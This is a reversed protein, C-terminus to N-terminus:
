TTRSLAVLAVDGVYGTSAGNKTAMRLEVLHDGSSPIAVGTLTGTAAAPAAAYGDITGVPIGDLLVTYIGRDTDAGHLLDLTYTGAAGTWRWTASADVGSSSRLTGGWAGTAQRAWTGASTYPSALCPVAITAPYLTGPSPPAVPVVPVAVTRRETQTLRRNTDKLTGTLSRPLRATSM